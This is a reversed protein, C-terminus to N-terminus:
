ANDEYLLVIGKKDNRAAVAGFRALTSFISGYYEPKDEDTFVETAGMALRVYDPSYFLATNQDTAAEAAGDAKLVNSVDLKLVESRVYWDFGLARALVGNPVSTRGVGAKDADTFQAIKMLDTKMSYPIVAVGNLDSNDPLVDQKHFRQQVAFIDNLSIALRNGTQVGNKSEVARSSGSSVIIDTVGTAWKVLARSAMKTRIQNMIQEMISQRKSAGGAEILREMNRILIPSSTLEEMEYNHAVDARQVIPAPLVNRDVVIDPLTGANMLEVTNNNVWQDDRIARSLFTNAPFLQANIATTFLRKLIEAAM